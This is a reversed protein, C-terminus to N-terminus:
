MVYAFKVAHFKADSTDHMLKCSQITVQLCAVKDQKKWKGKLEVKM